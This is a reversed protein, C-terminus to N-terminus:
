SMATSLVKAPTHSPAPAMRPGTHSIGLRFVSICIYFLPSAWPHAEQPEPLHSASAFPASFGPLDRSLRNDWCSSLPELVPSDARAASLNLWLCAARPGPSPEAPWPRQLQMQKRVIRSPRPRHTCVPCMQFLGAHTLADRSGVTRQAVAHLPGARRPNRHPPCALRQPGM